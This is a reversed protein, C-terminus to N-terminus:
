EFSEMKQLFYEKYRVTVKQEKGEGDYEKRTKTIWRDSITDYGYKRRLDRIRSPPHCINFKDFMEYATIKNHKQLYDWVKKNQSDRM